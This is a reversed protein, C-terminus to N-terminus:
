RLRCSDVMAFFALYDDVGAAKTVRLRCYLRAFVSIIALALISFIAADLRAMSPFPELGAPDSM